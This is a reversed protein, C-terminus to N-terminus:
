IEKRGEFSKSLTAEDAFELESGVPLGRALQTVKIKFPKLLNVLYLSTAEGEVSPNTALIVEKISGNKCREVLEKIKLDEPGIGDLPTILGWLVHYIGRFSGTKEIAAVDRPNEVVCLSNRDRGPNSCIFCPSKETFNFCVSCYHIDKRLAAIDHALAIVDERPSKLLYLVVREASKVGLGPLKRIKNILDEVTKPYHM